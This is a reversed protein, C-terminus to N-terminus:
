IVGPPLSWTIIAIKVFFMPGVQREFMLVILTSFCNEDPFFAFCSYDQCSNAKTTRSSIIILVYNLTRNKYEQRFSASSPRTQIRQLCSFPVSFM